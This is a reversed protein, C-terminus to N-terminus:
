ESDDFAPEIWIVRSVNVQAAKDQGAPVFVLTKNDLSQIIGHRRVIARPSFPTENDKVPAPEIWLTDRAEAADGVPDYVLSASLLVLCLLWRIATFIALSRRM